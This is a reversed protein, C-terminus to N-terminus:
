IRALREALKNRVLLETFIQAVLENVGQNWWVQLSTESVLEEIEEDFEVAVLSLCGYFAGPDLIRVSSPIRIHELARNKAFAESAIVCENM